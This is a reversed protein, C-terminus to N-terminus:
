DENTEGITNMKIGESVSSTRPRTKQLETRTLLEDILKFSSKPDLTM